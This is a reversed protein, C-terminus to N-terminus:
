NYSWQGYQGNSRTDMSDDEYYICARMTRYSVIEVDRDKVEPNLPSGVDECM